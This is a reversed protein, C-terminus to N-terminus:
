QCTCKRYQQAASMTQAASEPVTSEGTMSNVQRELAAKLEDVTNAPFVEEIPPMEDLSKQLQTAHANSKDVAPTQNPKPLITTKPYTDPGTKPILEVVIDRGNMVDTIDGYDPDSIINLLSEYVQKGFGWFRVGKEEEGRVIVPLYVRMKPVYGLSLVYDARDGGDRVSMGFDNIPDTGGYSLPSCFTRGGFGYHFYLELFPNDMRHKYPVIRIIQKGPIAKWTSNSRNSKSNLSKLKAKIADLNM